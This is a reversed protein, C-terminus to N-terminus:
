LRTLREIVKKHMPFMRVLKEREGLEFDDFHFGPSVTCGILGYSGKAEVAGAFWVGQKIAYQFVEGKDADKGLKVASYSGNDDIM